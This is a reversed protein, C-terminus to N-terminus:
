DGAALQARLHGIVPATDVRVGHWLFFSEAAQEVLMGLGDATTAGAAAAALMFPTPRAGYVMDYARAGPAYIGEPLDPAADQLGSATANIVVQWGGPRAAGALESASLPVGGQDLDAVLARARAETRNAVHLSACGAGRLTAVAGRAAGGAGVVLVHAGALLVGLRQLDRLLGIGDTNCGILAGERLWLTNVAGAERARPTLHDRAREWAQQKFPVTVNLGRGGEAFFADVSADFGDLPALRREYVLDIGTQEAFRAHIDPSRSHAIPNGIVAFRLPRAGM